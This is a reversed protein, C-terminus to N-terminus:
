APDCESCDIEILTSYEVKLLEHRNFEVVENTGCVKSWINGMADRKFVKFRIKANFQRFYMEFCKRGEFGM